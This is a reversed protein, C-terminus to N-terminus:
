PLYYTPNPVKYTTDAFGGILDSYQDGLNAVIHFGLDQEIHKRTLSKYDITSCTVSACGSLYAPRTAARVPTPDNQDYWKTFFYQRMFDTYGNKALNGLTAYKQDNSRGTLGMVTCGADAVKAVLQPMGPVAPMLETQVWVNQLAPSFVFKMAGDEMDYNWLTTDDSDFVVAPKGPVDIGALAAKAHALNRSARRLARRAKRKAPVGHAHRLKRKAARVKASAAKVRAAAHAVAANAAGVKALQTQCATVIQPTWSKELGTVDNIYGSKSKDAIGNTANYYSRIETRVPDINPIADGTAVTTGSSGDPKMTYSDPLKLTGSQDNEGPHVLNPSALFYTPNPIKVAADPATFGGWLDSLQDGVNALISVDDGTGTDGDPGAEIHKRTQAKYEVTTCKFSGPIGTVATSCEGGNAPKVYDPVAAPDYADPAGATAGTNWKTFVNADSFLPTGTGQETFGAATLNAITAAKQAAPRGTIVYLDYGQSKLTQLVDPMGPVAPFCFGNFKTCNADTGTVWAANSAADFNFNSGKDEYDYNWLLTDDTDFVLATDAPASDPLKALLQQEIAHVQTIYPSDNKDAIQTSGGNVVPVNYYTRITSKVSDVNPIDEGSAPVAEIQGNTENVPMTFTTHPALDAQAPATTALGAAVLAASAAVTTAAKTHILRM